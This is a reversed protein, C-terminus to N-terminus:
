VETATASQDEIAPVATMDSHTQKALKGELIRVAGAYQKPTLDLLSPVGFHSQILSIDSATEEVLELLRAFEDPSLRPESVIRADGLM